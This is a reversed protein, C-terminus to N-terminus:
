LWQGRLHWLGAHCCSQQANISKNQSFEGHIQLASDERILRSDQLVNMQIKALLFLKLKVRYNSNYLAEMFSIHISSSSTMKIM